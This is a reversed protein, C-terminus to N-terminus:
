ENIQCDTEYSIACKLISDLTLLSVDSFIEVPKDGTLPDWKKILTATCSNFVKVYRFCSFEVLQFSSNSKQSM